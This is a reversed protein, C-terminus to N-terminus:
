FWLLREKKEWSILEEWFAYITLFLDGGPLAPKFPLDPFSLRRGSSTRFFVEFGSRGRLFDEFLYEIGDLGRGDLGVEGLLPLTVEGYPYFRKWGEHVYVGPLRELTDKLEYPLGFALPYAKRRGLDDLPDRIGPYSPLVGEIKGVQYLDIGPINMALPRGFRDLIEGRRGKLGVEILFQDNGRKRWKEGEKM